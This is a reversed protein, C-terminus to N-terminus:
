RVFAQLEGAECVWNKEGCAHVIRQATTRLTVLAQTRAPDNSRPSLAARTVMVMIKLTARVGEIGSPISGFYARATGEM